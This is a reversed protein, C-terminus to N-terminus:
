RSPQGPQGNWQPGYPGHQHPLGSPQHPPGYGAPPYGAPPGGAPGRMAAFYGSSRRNWLSVVAALGIAWGALGLGRAPGPSPQGFSYLLSVTAMGFFVTSLIRAWPRGGKNARAM